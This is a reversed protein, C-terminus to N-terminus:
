DYSLSKYLIQRDETSDHIGMDKALSSLINDKHQHTTFIQLISAKGLEIPKSESKSIQSFKHTVIKQEYIVKVFNYFWDKNWTLKPQSFLLITQFINSPIVVLCGVAKNDTYIEYVLWHKKFDFEILNDNRALFHGKEGAFFNIEEYWLDFCMKQKENIKFIPKFHFQTDTLELNKLENNFKWMFLRLLTLGIGLSKYNMKEYLKMAPINEMLVSFCIFDKGKQKAFNEAYKMLYTGFGKRKFEELLGVAYVFISKKRIELSLAGALKNNEM